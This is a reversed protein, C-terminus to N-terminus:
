YSGVSMQVIGLRMQLCVANGAGGFWSLSAKLVGFLRYLLCPRGQQSGQAIQVGRCKTSVRQAAQVSKSACDQYESATYMLPSQRTCMHSSSGAPQRSFTWCNLEVLGDGLMHTCPM